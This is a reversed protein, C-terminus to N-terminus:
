WARIKRRWRQARPKSSRGGLPVGAARVLRRGLRGLDVLGPRPDDRALTDSAERGRLLPGLEGLLRWVGVRRAAPEVLFNDRLWSLDAQWNRSYVPMPYGAPFERRGEVLMEYLWWPFDVGARLALPLSGWFRANIELLVWSGREGDLLFEFMAVGTYDLARVLREVAAYMDQMLPVTCRLSDAGDHRRRHVRLHQMAALVRGEAALVEIGSGTGEVYPQVLVEDQEAFEALGAALADPREIMRVLRKRAPADLDYSSVPKVVVPYWAAPVASPDHPRRLTTQAPMPVGLEAALAHTADKRFCVDFTAGPLLYCRAAREVVARHRQLPIVSPDTTPVVLDFRERACLAVLADRWALDDSTFPPLAHAAAVYRSRLTVDDPPAWAVHVRAGRRGFSRVVSLFARDGSGLVLIKPLTPTTGAGNSGV